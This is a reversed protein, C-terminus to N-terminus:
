SNSITSRWMEVMKRWVSEINYRENVRQKVNAECETRFKADSLMKDIANRLQNINRPEVMIGYHKGDKEELMEPIAGVPTTVIACGCAMSELIVNPFGESYTPLIFVGCRCMDAIIECFPRNGLIHLTSSTSNWRSKLDEAIYPKIAGYMKLEVNHLSSCAEVLEYIGKEPVCQGAFMLMRTQRITKQYESAIENVVMSLPNPIYEVRECGNALLTNYSMQDIVITKDAKKVVYCLLKWEWNRKKALEPIRGFHFHIVCKVGYKHAIKTMVIDKLLGLTASSAVHLIDYKTHRIKRWLLKSAYMYKRVGMLVRNIPTKSIFDEVNHEKTDNLPLVEIEIDSSTSQYHNIIHEAWRSIGGTACGYSTAFLVKM